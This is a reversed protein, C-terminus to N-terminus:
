GSIQSLHGTISASLSGPPTGPPVHLQITLTEIRGEPAGPGAELVDLSCGESLQCAGDSLPQGNIAVVRLDPTEFESDARVSLLWDGCSSRLGQVAVVLDASSVAQETTASTVQITGFDLSGEFTFTPDPISGLEPTMFLPEATSDMATVAAVAPSSITADARVTISEPSTTCALRSVRLDFAITFLSTADDVVAISGADSLAFETALNAGSMGPDTWDGAQLDPSRLQVSWSGTVSTAIAIQVKILAPDIHAATVEFDTECSYDLSGGSAIVATASSKIQCTPQGPNTYNLSPSPEETAPAIPSEVSDASDGVSTPTASDEDQAVIAAPEDATPLTADSQDPASDTSELPPTTEEPLTSESSDDTTEIISTTPTAAEDSEAFVVGASGYVSGCILCALLMLLLFSRGACGLCSRFGSNRMCGIECHGM